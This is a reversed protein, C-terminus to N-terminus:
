RGTFLTKEDVFCLGNGWPDEVYFSLEGWPRKVMDGAKQDHFEEKSLCNLAQARKYVEALNDVAFYIYDANPKPEEGGAAVDVVALIVPGCDFYHRSGRAIRTGADDLLKSYFAAAKELDSVQLAVRFLKPVMTTRRLQSSEPEGATPTGIYWVNDFPDKVAGVRAGYPQDAPEGMSIAGEAKMARAYWADVDDVYLMFMMPIPQWQEHAEGMEVISNGIRITAHHVIGDPSQYVAIEEAGFSQKLFEIMKPAGRPHFFPMLNPMGEPIYSAGRHTAIYWSNGGVDKIAAGREGYEHDTPGMLSTAGAQMARDYVADVDEVYLHLAGPMEKGRLAEGGGIMLMSEGIKYESHLGGESGPGYIRGEAGFVNQVFDIVEHVNAVTLYPTVTRFGERISKITSHPSEDSIETRETATSMSTESELEKKLGAKFEARPLDILAAAIRLLDVVREDAASPAADSQVLMAEIAQDLQETLTVESM